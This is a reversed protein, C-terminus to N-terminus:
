VEEMAAIAARAQFTWSRWYYHGGRGDKDYTDPPLTDARVEKIIDLSMPVGNSAECLAKAVREIRDDILNTTM